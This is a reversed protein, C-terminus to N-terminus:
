AEDGCFLLASYAKGDPLKMMFKVSGKSECQYLVTAGDEFTGIRIPRDGAFALVPGFALTSAFLFTFLKSLMNSLMKKREQLLCSIGVLEKKKCSLKIHVSFM